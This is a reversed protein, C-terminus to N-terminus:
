ARDLAGTVNEYHENLLVSLNYYVIITNHARVTKRSRKFMYPHTAIQRRSEQTSIIVRAVAKRGASIRRRKM